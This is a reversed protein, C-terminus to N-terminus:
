AVAVSLRHIPGSTSAVSCSAVPTTSHIVEFRVTTGGRGLLSKRLTHGIFSEVARRFSLVVSAVAERRPNHAVCGNNCLFQLSVPAGAYPGVARLCDHLPM